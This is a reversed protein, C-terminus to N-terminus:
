PLPIDLAQHVVEQLVNDDMGEWMRTVYGVM